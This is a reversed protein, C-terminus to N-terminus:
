CVCVTIRSDKNRDHPPSVAMMMMMMMMLLLLMLLLLLLVLLLVLLLSDREAMMLREWRKNKQSYVTFCIVTDLELPGSVRWRDIYVLLGQSDILGNMM